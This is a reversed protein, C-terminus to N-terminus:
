AYKNRNEECHTRVVKLWSEYWYWNKVVTVGYGKAPNKGDLKKWLQIHHYMNFKPYGEDRMTQVVYGAPYKPRETEKILAYTKNIGQAMESDAKVFTIVEDAQGKSNATKGTLLVRYAYRTSQFEEPSLEDEFRNICASIHRPIDSRESLINLQDRSVASFQLSVPLHKDIGNREGFFKQVYHNYNLACAQFKATITDDIHSTMQHEIEHRLTILFRLNNSTDSDLPNNKDNLCRELEWYKYAGHKTKDFRKRKGNQSFYRYNIKSNRYYAHLLYTWAIHMTVIFLESKFSIQPNNFIQVAAMAAERSKNVLEGKISGIRRRRTRPM